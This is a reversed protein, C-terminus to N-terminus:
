LDSSMARITTPDYRVARIFILEPGNAFILPLHQGKFSTIPMFSLVNLVAEQRDLGDWSRLLVLFINMPPSAQYKADTRATRRHLQHLPVKNASVYDQLAEVVDLLADVGADGTM